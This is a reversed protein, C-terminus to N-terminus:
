FEEKEGDSQTFDTITTCSDNNKPVIDLFMNDNPLEGEM